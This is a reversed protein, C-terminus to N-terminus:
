YTIKCKPMAKKLRAIGEPTIVHAKMVLEKIDKMESLAEVHEDGLKKASGGDLLFQRCKLKSLLQLNEPSLTDSSSPTLQFSELNKFEMVSPLLDAMAHCRHLKLYKIHKLPLLLDPPLHDERCDKSDFAILQPLAALKAIIEPTLRGSLTVDRLGGLPSKPGPLTEAPVEFNLELFTLNPFKQGIIRIAEAAGEGELRGLRLIDLQPLMPMAQLAPLTFWMNANDFKTLSPSGSLHAVHQPALPQKQNVGLAVLGPVKPLLEWPFIEPADTHHIGAIITHLKWAGKPLGAASKIEVPKEEDKTTIFISRQCAFAWEALKMVAEPDDEKAPKIPPPAPPTPKGPEEVVVKPMEPAKENKLAERTTRIAIAGDQDGAKTLETQLTELATDYKAKVPAALQDRKVELSALASRYTLRLTKLSEPAAFDDAPLAAKEAVRKKEDRLAVATDLQGVQTAATLARDLAATYKAALDALSAAHIAAVEKQYAAEYASRLSSLRQTTSPSQANLVSVFLHIAFIPLGFSRIKKDVLNPPPNM